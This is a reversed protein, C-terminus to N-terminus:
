FLIEPMFDPVFEHMSKHRKFRLWFHEPNPFRKATLRRAPKLNEAAAVDIEEIAALRFILEQRLLFHACDTAGM